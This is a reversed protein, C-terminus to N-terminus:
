KKFENIFERVMEGLSKVEAEIGGIRRDQERREALAPNFEELITDCKAVAERHRDVKALAEEASAKLSEVERLIGDRDTSLVLTGAYAVPATEPITYTRTAGEAEITVDVVMGTSAPAPAGFKPADYRPVAVSVVKGTYARVAEKDFFYIPYGAKADKYQMIYLM